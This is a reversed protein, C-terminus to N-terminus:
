GILKNTTINKGHVGVGEAAILIRVLNDLSNKRSVGREGVTTQYGEPLASIFQDANAAQAAAIMRSHWSPSLTTGVDKQGSGYLINDQITGSMLVPEQGVLAIVKM